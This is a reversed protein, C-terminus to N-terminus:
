KESGYEKVEKSSSDCIPYRGCLIWHFGLFYYGGM